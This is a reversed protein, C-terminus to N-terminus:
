KQEINLYDGGVEVADSVLGGAVVVKIVVNPLAREGEVPDL